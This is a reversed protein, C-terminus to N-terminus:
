KKIDEQLDITEKAVKRFKELFMEWTRRRTSHCEVYVYGLDSKGLVQSFPPRTGVDSPKEVGLEKRFVIRISELEPKSRTSDSFSVFIGGWDEPLQTGDIVEWENQFEVVMGAFLRQKATRQGGEIIWRVEHRQAQENEHVTRYRGTANLEFYGHDLVFLTNLDVDKWLELTEGPKLSLLDASTQPTFGIFSAPERRFRREGIQADDVLKWLDLVRFPAWSQPDIEKNQKGVNRIELKALVSKGLEKSELNVFLRTEIERDSSTPVWGSRTEGTINSLQLRLTGVSLVDLHNPWTHIEIQTYGQMKLVTLLDQVWAFSVGEEVMLHICIESPQIELSRGKLQETLEELSWAKDEAIYVPADITVHKLRHVKMLYSPRLQNRLAVVVEWEDEGFYEGQFLKNPLAKWLRDFKDKDLSFEEKRWEGDRLLEELYVGADERVTIPSTSDLMLFPTDEWFMWPSATLADPKFAGKLFKAEEISPARLVKGEAPILLLRSLALLQGDLNLKALRRLVEIRQVENYRLLENAVQVYQQIPFPVLSKGERWDPLSKIRGILEDMEAASKVAQRSDVQPVCAYATAISFGILLVVLMGSLLGGVSWVVGVRRTSTQVNLIRRIRKMLVGGSAAMLWEPEDVRWEELRSLARALPIRDGCVEIALEDCCHERELRVQASLWWVAPHYFFMIEIWCQLLNVVYDYRRIHALEHAIVAELEIRSLGSIAQAPLFIVPRLWGMAAPIGLRTSELIAISKRIGLRQSLREVVATIESCNLYKAERKWRYIELLGCLFRLASLVVGVLWVGVVTILVGNSIPNWSPLASTTPPPSLSGPQSEPQSDSTVELSKVRGSAVISTGRGQSLIAGDGSIWSSRTEAFHRSNRYGDTSRIAGFTIIPAMLLAVMGTCAIGYRTPSRLKRGVRLWLAVLGVILCGQWLFHLLTWGIAITSSNEIYSSYPEWIGSWSAVVSARSVYDNWSEAAAVRGFM